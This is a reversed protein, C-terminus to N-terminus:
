VKWGVKGDKAEGLIDGVYIGGLTLEFGRTDGEVLRVTLVAPEHWVAPLMAPLELVDGLELGKFDEVSIM